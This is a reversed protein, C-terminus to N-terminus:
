INIDLLKGWCVVLCHLNVISNGADKKIWGKWVVRSFRELVREEEERTEEVAEMGEEKEEPPNDCNRGYKDPM